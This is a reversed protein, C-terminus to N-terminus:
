SPRPPPTRPLHAPPPSEPPPPFPVHGGEGTRWPLFKTFLADRQRPDLQASAHAADRERQQYAVFDKFLAERQGPTSLLQAAERDIPQDLDAHRVADERALGVSRIWHDPPGFRTWGPLPIERHM